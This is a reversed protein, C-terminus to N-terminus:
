ANWFFGGAFLLCIDRNFALKATTISYNLYNVVFLDLLGDNNYDFWGAAVSWAKGLKPVNGGVGAKVTV